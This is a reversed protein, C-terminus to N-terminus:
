KFPQKQSSEQTYGNTPIYVYKQLADPGCAGKFKISEMFHNQLAFPVGPM